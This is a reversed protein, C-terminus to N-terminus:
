RMYLLAKAAMLQVEPSGIRIYTLLNSVMGSQAMWTKPAQKDALVGFATAVLRQLEENRSRGLLILSAFGGQKALAHHSERISCFTLFAKACEVQVVSSKSKALSNLLEMGGEAIFLDVSGRLTGIAACTHAVERSISAEVGAVGVCDLMAGVEGRKLVRQKGQLELLSQITDISRNIADVARPVAPEDPM